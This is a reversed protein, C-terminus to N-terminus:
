AQEGAPVFPEDNTRPAHRRIIITGIIVSTAAVLASCGLWVGGMGMWFGEPYMQILLSDAPFLWTGQAFFLGHLCAFLSEFSVFAWLGLVAFAGLAVCGGAFLARGAAKAGFMYVLCMLCFAAILTIGMLPMRANTIVSNVDNLHDLAEQDLAYAASIQYLQHIAIIAQMEGAQAEGIIERADESWADGKENSQSSLAAAELVKESLKEESFAIGEDSRYYDDITFDRTQVALEVLADHIYPSADFASNTSALVRTVLPFGACLAFGIGIYTIAVAIATLAILFSRRIKKSSAM